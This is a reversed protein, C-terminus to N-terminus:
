APRGPGPGLGLRQERREEVRAREFERGVVERRHGALAERQRDRGRREGAAVPQRRQRGMEARPGAEGRAEDNRDLFRGDGRIRRPRRRAQPRHPGEPDGRPEATVPRAVERGCLERRQGEVPQAQLAGENLGEGARGVVAQVQAPEDPEGVM